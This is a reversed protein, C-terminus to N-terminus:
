MVPRKSRGGEEPVDDAVAEPVGVAATPRRKMM